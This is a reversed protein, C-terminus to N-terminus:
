CLGSISHQSSVFIVQLNPVTASVAIIRLSTSGSITKISKMRTVIAELCAGRIGDKITHIEDILILRVLNILHHTDNWQRTISDWKEPTTVIVEAQQAMQVQSFPTDGTLSKCNLGLIKFRNEWDKQREDCLARTPAIYIVLLHILFYM